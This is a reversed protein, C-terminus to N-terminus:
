PQAYSIAADKGPGRDIMLAIILLGIVAVWGGNGSTAVTTIGVVIPTFIMLAIVLGSPPPDIPNEFLRLRSRGLQLGFAVYLASVLLGVLIYAILIWAESMGTASGMKELVQWGAGTMTGSFSLVGIGLLLCRGILNGFGSAGIALATLVGNLLFVMFVQRFNDLLDVGGAFYRTLLYPLLSILMLGSLAFGVLWKGRVVQWRSLNSMLLLEVNRGGGLESRLSGLNTLPMVVGIILWLVMYLVGGLFETFDGSGANHDSAAIGLETGVAVIAMVQAIVFPMVFRHARLGQRLEKVFVPSFSDPMPTPPAFQATDDSNLAAPQM